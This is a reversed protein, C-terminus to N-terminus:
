RIKRGVVGHYLLGSMIKYTTRPFVRITFGWFPEFFEKLIFYSNRPKKDFYRKSVLNNTAPNVLFTRPSFKARRLMTGLEKMRYEKLHLGQAPSGTELFYKSVDSPGYIANPTLMILWGGPKLKKYCEILFDQASDPHLHEFVDSNYIIDFDETSVDELQGDVVHAPSVNYLELRNRAEQNSETDVDVGYVDWGHHAASTLVHGAGSGVELFKAPSTSNWVTQCIKFQRDANKYGPQFENNLRQLRILQTYAEIYAQARETSNKPSQKIINAWHRELEFQQRRWESIEEPRSGQTKWATM